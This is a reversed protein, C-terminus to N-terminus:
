AEAEDDGLAPTAFAAELALGGKFAEWERKLLRNMSMAAKRDNLHMAQEAALALKGILQLTRLTILFSPTFGGATSSAASEPVAGPPAAPAMVHALLSDRTWGPLQEIDTLAQPWENVQQVFASLLGEAFSQTPALRISRAWQALHPDFRQPDTM